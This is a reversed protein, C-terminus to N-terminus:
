YNITYHYMGKENGDKLNRQTEIQGGGRNTIDSLDTIKIATIYSATNKDLGHQRNEKTVLRKILGEFHKTDHIIEIETTKERRRRRKPAETNIGEASRRKEWEERTSIKNFEKKTIKRYEGKKMKLGKKLVKVYYDFQDALIYKGVLTEDIKDEDRVKKLSITIPQAIRLLEHPYGQNDRFAVKGDELQGYLLFTISYDKKDRNTAMRENLPKRAQIGEYKKDFRKKTANSTRKNESMLGNILNIATERQSIKRDQYLDIVQEVRGKVDEGAGRGLRKLVAVNNKINKSTM